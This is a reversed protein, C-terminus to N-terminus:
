HQTDIKAFLFAVGYQSIATNQANLVRRNMKSQTMIQTM